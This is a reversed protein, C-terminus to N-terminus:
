TVSDQNQVISKLICPMTLYAIDLWATTKTHKNKRATICKHNGITVSNCLLFSPSWNPPTWHLQGWIKAQLTLLIWFLRPLLGEKKTFIHISKHLIYVEPQDKQIPSFINNQSYKILRIQLGHENKTSTSFVSHLFLSRRQNHPHFHNWDDHAKLRFDFGYM